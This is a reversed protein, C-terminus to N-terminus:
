DCFYRIFRKNLINVFPVTWIFGIGLTVIGLLFRPTARLYLAFMDVNRYRMINKAMRVTKGPGAEPIKALIYTIASNSILISIASALALLIIVTIAFIWVASGAAFGGVVLIASSIKGVFYWALLALAVKIAVPLQCRIAKKMKKFYAFVEDVKVSNRMAIKSYCVGAGTNIPIHVFVFAAIYLLYFIISPGGYIFDKGFFQACLFQATLIAFYVAFKVLFSILSIMVAKAKRKKYIKRTEQYLKKHTIM